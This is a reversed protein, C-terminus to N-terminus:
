SYQVSVLYLGQPQASAGARRRDRSEIIDRFGELTLKGRGLDLLTGVIARVMNRLFRDATIRYILLYEEECCIWESQILKCLTTQVDSGTKCFSAFDSYELLVQAGRQMLELDLPATYLYAANLLFPDKRRVIWYEYSRTQADFRAHFTPYTESLAYVAIDSPLIGNLMYVVEQLPLSIQSADFHAVYHKAHVGTDTRGAGVLEVATRLIQKLAKELTEQVTLANPQRQWGHYNTGCYSLDIRYRM